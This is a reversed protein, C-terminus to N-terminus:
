LVSPKQKRRLNELAAYLRKTRRYFRCCIIPRVEGAFGAARLAPILAQRSMGVWEAAERSSIYGSKFSRISEITVKAYKGTEPSTRLYGLNILARVARGALQLLREANAHVGEGLQKPPVGVNTAMIM